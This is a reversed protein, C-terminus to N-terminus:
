AIPPLLATTPVVEASDSGPRKWKLALSTGGQLNFYEVRIEHEGAKLEISASRELHRHVGDNDVVQEGNIWLRSGDDSGLTFTYEGDEEILIRGTWVAGTGFPNFPLAFAGADAFELAADRRILATELAGFDPLTRTRSELRYYAGRLGHRARSGREFVVPESDLLGARVRLSGAALNDPLRAHLVDGDRTARIAREAYNSGTPVVIRLDRGHLNEVRVHVEGGPLLVAPEVGAIRPRKEADLVRLVRGSQWSQGFVDTTRVEILQSGPQLEGPLASKWLHNSPMPAPVRQSDAMELYRPDFELAYQMAQWEGGDVRWQVSSRESSGFINAYVPVGESRDSWIEDPAHIDMQYDDARSAAKYRWRHEAGDFTAIVYGNPGGCRMTAHPIGREDADGRWWSGSVTVLNGHELPQEGQWAEEEIFMHHHTHVHGSLAFVRKRHRIIEYLEARNPISLTPLPTRSTLPIHMLLVVLRDDPVHALDNAIWQLQEVTLHGSYRRGTWLINNLAIFHVRSYEFSYYDPGYVRRFTEGAANNTAADQNIDHNGIVNYWPVGIKGVAANLPEFLNLDDGVIDGLTVGFAAESGILEAVVDRAVYDVQQLTYPQPDALFIVDFKEPEEHPVLPFDISAPLDGTPELGGYLLEPSGEPRHHHFFRPLQHKNLPTMWGAPKVVFFTCDGHVPLTWHGNDDTLVVERQNSVRVNAIGPEGDDRVGNRNRDHFIVGRASIVDVPAPGDEQADAGRSMSLAAAIAALAVCGLALAGLGTRARSRLQEPQLM